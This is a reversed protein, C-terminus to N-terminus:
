VNWWAGVDFVPCTKGTTYDNHGKVVAKTYVMTLHALLGELTAMQRRNFNFPQKGPRAKGGVLCIGITRANHGAVHAGPEEVPRGRELRGDRKIVFHYGIDRWGKDKHWERIEAVGVDMDPYTDSAHVVLANIARM